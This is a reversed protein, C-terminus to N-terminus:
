SEVARNADIGLPDLASIAYFFLFRKVGEKKLQYEHLNSKM